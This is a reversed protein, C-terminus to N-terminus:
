LDPVAGYAGALYKAAYNTRADVGAMDNLTWAESNAEHKEVLIIQPKYFRNIIEAAHTTFLLQAHKPNTEPRLFLDLIADLMHPHLDAELEDIVAVGGNELVPLLVGLMCFLSQTGRSEDELGLKIIKNDYKHITIPHTFKFDLKENKIEKFEVDSIGIDWGRLLKLARQLLGANEKFINVADQIGVVAPMRGFVNHLNSSIGAFFRYAPMIKQNNFQAGWSIMSVNKRIQGVNSMSIGTIETSFDESDAFHTREFVRSFLRSTKVRLSEAFVRESSCMLNYRYINGDDAEFEVSFLSPEDYALFHQELNTGSSPASHFSHAVFNALFALGKLLSTKGSANHGLVVMATSLRTGSPSVFSLYDDPVSKGLRFDLTVEDQFSLYNQASFTHLM